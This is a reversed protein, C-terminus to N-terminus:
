GVGHSQIHSYIRFDGPIGRAIRYSRLIGELVFGCRDLVAMVCLNSDLATAQVRRVNAETHARQILMRYQM